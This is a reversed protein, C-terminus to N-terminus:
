LNTELYLIVKKVIEINDKFLGLGLNCNKCLLGRVKGNKHDHDVAFSKGSSCRETHCIACKFNQKQLLDNYEDLSIKYKKQLNNNKWNNKNKQYYEKLKQKTTTKNNYKKYILQTKEKNKSRWKDKKEKSRYPAMLEFNKLKTKGQLIACNRCSHNIIYKEYSSCRPCATKSTYYKKNELIAKKRNLSSQLRKNSM